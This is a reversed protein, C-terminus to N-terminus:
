LMHLNQQLLNLNEKFLILVIIKNLVLLYYKILCNYSYDIVQLLGDVTTNYLMIGKTYLIFLM